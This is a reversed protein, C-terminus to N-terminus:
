ATERMGLISLLKDPLSPHDGFGFGPYSDDTPFGKTHATSIGTCVWKGRNSDDECPYWHHKNCVSPHNWPLVAAEKLETGQYHPILFSERVAIIREVVHRGEEIFLTGTRLYLSSSPFRVHLPIPNGPHQEHWLIIPLGYEHDWGFPVLGQESLRMRIGHDELRFYRYLDEIVRECWHGHTEADEQLKGM